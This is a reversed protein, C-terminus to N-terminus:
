HRFISGRQAMSLRIGAEYHSQPSGSVGWDSHRLAVEALIFETEAAVFVPLRSGAGFNPQSYGSVASKEFQLKGSRMGLYDQSGISAKTFYASTRPDQYGTM